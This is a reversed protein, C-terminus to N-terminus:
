LDEKKLLCPDLTTNSSSEVQTDHSPIRFSLIEGNINASTDALPQPTDTAVEPPFDQRPSLLSTVHACSSQQSFLDAASFVNVLSQLILGLQHIQASVGAIASRVLEAGEVVNLRTTALEETVQSRFESLETLVAQQFHPHKTRPPHASSSDELVFYAESSTDHSVVVDRTRIHNKEWESDQYTQADTQPLYDEDMAKEVSFGHCVHPMQEGNEVIATQCKKPRGRKREKTEERKHVRLHADKNTKRVKMTLVQLQPVHSNQDLLLLQTKRPRGRGKKEAQFSASPEGDVFKKTSGHPRGRGRKILVGTDEKKEKKLVTGTKSQSPRGRRRKESGGVNEAQDGTVIMMEENRSSRQPTRPPCTQEGEESAEVSQQVNNYLRELIPVDVKDHRSLPPRGRRRKGSAAVPGTSSDHPPKVQAVVSEDLSKALGDHRTKEPNEM